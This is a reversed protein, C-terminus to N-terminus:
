GGVPSNQPQGGRHLGEEYRGDKGAAAIMPSIPIGISEPSIGILRMNYELEDIRMATERHEMVLQMLKRQLEIYRDRMGEFQQWETGRGYLPARLLNTEKPLRLKIGSGKIIGLWYEFSQKQELYEIGSDLRIGYVRIEDVADGGRHEHVALAAMYDMASRFYARDEMDFTTLVQELPYRLSNQVLSDEEIMYVPVPCGQLFSEYQHEFGPRQIDFNGDPGREHIQFWRDRGVQLERALHLNCENLFWGEVEESEGNILDRTSPDMGCIAIIRGM